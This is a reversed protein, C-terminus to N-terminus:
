AWLKQNLLAPISGPFKCNQLSQLHCQHQQHPSMSQSGQNLDTCLFKDVYHLLALKCQGVNGFDWFGLALTLKSNHWFNFKLYGLWLCTLLTLTPHPAGQLLYFKQFIVKLFEKKIHCWKTQLFTMLLIVLIGASNSVKIYLAKM